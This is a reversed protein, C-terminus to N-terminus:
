SDRLLGAVYSYLDDRSSRYLAELDKPGPDPDVETPSTM